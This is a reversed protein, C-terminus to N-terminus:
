AAVAQKPQLFQVHQVIRCNFGVNATQTFIAAESDGFQAVNVIPETLVQGSTMYGGQHINWAQMQLFAGKTPSAGILSIFGQDNQLQTKTMGAVKSIPIDVSFEVESNKSGTAMRPLVRSVTAEQRNVIDVNTTNTPATALNTTLNVLVDCNSCNWMRVYARVNSVLYEHYLPSVVAYGRSSTDKGSILSWTYGPDFISNLQITKHASSNVTPAIYDFVSWYMNTFLTRAILTKQGPLDVLPRHGPLRALAKGGTLLGGKGTKRRKGKGAMAKKSRPM